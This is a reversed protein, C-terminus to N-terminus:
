TKEDPKIQIKPDLIALITYNNSTFLNVDKHYVIKTGKKIEDRMSEPIPINIHGYVGHVLARNKFVGNVTKYNLRDTDSLMEQREEELEAAEEELRTETEEATEPANINSFAYSGFAGFSLTLVFMVAIFIINKVIPEKPKYPISGTM